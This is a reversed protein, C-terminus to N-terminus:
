AERAPDRWSRLSASLGPVKLGIQTLTAGPLPVVEIDLGALQIRDYDRLVGAVPIGEIPVNLNWLNDYIIYTERRRFHEAPDAFKEYEYEPVFVPIGYESAPLAGAAHDRFYHTCALAVPPEPLGELENLWRGSGADVILM